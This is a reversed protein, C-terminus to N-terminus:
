HGSGNEKKSPLGVTVNIVPQVTAPDVPSGDKGLTSIASLDPLCKSILVKAASVKAPDLTVPRGQFETQFIGAQMWAILRDLKIKARVDDQHRPKLTRAGMKIREDM